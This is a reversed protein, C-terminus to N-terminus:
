GGGAGSALPLPRGGEVWGGSSREACEHLLQAFDPEVLGWAKAALFHLFQSVHHPYPQVQKNSASGAYRVMRGWRHTIVLDMACLMTRPIGKNLTIILSGGISRSM